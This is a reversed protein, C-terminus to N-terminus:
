HRQEALLSGYLPEKPKSERGIKDLLSKRRRDDNNGLGREQARMIAAQYQGCRHNAVDLLAADSGSVMGYVPHNMKRKGIHDENWDRYYGCKNPCYWTLIQIM